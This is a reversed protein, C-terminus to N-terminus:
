VSEIPAHDAPIQLESDSEHLAHAYQSVSIQKMGQHSIKEERVGEGHQM